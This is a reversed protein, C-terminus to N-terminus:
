KRATRKDPLEPRGEIGGLLIAAQSFEVVGELQRWPM